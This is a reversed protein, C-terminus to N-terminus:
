IKERGEKIWEQEEDTYETNCREFITNVYELGKFALYQKVYYWLQLPVYVCVYSNSPRIEKKIGVIQTLEKLFPMFENYFWKRDEDRKFLTELMITGKKIPSKSWIPRMEWDKTHKIREVFWPVDTIESDEAEYNM